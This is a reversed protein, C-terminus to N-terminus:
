LADPLERVYNAKTRGGDGCTGCFVSSYNSPSGGAPEFAGCNWRRLIVFWNREEVPKKREECKCSFAKAMKQGREKLNM